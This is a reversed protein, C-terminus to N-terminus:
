SRTSAAVRCATEIPALATGAKRSSRLSSTSPACGSSSKSCANARSSSGLQGDAEEVLQLDAEAPLFGLDYSAGGVREGCLPADPRDVRDFALADVVADPREALRRAHDLEEIAVLARTLREGGPEAHRQVLHRRRQRPRRKGEDGDASASEPGLDREPPGFPLEKHAGIRQARKRVKARSTLRDAQM